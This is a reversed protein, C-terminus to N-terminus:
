IHILSLPPAVTVTKEVMAMVPMFSMADSPMLGRFVVQRKYVDLHTYSVAACTTINMIKKM